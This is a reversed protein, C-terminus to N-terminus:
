VSLDKKYLIQQALVLCELRASIENQPNRDQYITNFILDALEAKNYTITIKDLLNDPKKNM